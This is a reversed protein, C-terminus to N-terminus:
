RGLVCGVRVSQVTALYPVPRTRRVTSQFWGAPPQEYELGSEGRSKERISRNVSLQAQPANRTEKCQLLLVGDSWRCCDGVKGLAVWDVLLSPEGRGCCDKAEEDRGGVQHIGLGVKIWGVGAKTNLGSAS